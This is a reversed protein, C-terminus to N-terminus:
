SFLSVPDIGGHKALKVDRLFRRKPEFLRVEIIGDDKHVRSPM